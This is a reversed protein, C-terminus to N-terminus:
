KGRGAKGSNMIETVKYRYLNYMEERAPALFKRPDIAGPNEALAKRSAATAAIWGDSAM